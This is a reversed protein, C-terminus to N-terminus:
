FSSRFNLAVNRLFIKSNNKLGTREGVDMKYRSFYINVKLNLQKKANKLEEVLLPFPNSVNYKKIFSNHIQSNGLLVHALNSATVALSIQEKHVSIKAFDTNDDFNIEPDYDSASKKQQIDFYDLVDDDLVMFDYTIITAKDLCVKKLEKILESSKTYFLSGAFTVINISKISSPLCNGFGQLYTIRKHPTAKNLMSESPEVGIVHSCYNTLAIASYGTGCGIDLGNKFKENKFIAQELIIEHLPPRYASYHDAVIDDYKESM